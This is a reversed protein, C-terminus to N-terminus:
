VPLHMVVDNLAAAGSANLVKDRDGGIARHEGMAGACGVANAYRLLEVVRQVIGGVLDDDVAIIRGTGAQVRDVDPVQSQRPKLRDAPM